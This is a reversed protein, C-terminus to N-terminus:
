PMLTVATEILARTELSSIVATKDDAFIFDTTTWLAAPFLRTTSSHNVPVRIRLHGALRQPCHRLVGWM